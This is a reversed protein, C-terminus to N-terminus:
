CHNERLLKTRSSMATGARVRQLKEDCRINRKDDHSAIASAPPIELLREKQIYAWLASLIGMRTEETINLLNGLEPAVKYRKPQQNLFLAVKM